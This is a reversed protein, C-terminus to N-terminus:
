SNRHLLYHSIFKVFRVSDRWPHIQSKSGEYVCRIPISLIRYKKRAAELLMESEIEYRATQLSLSKLTEGKLARYGCQTDAIRQKAAMSLVWSMVHNTAVRLWPMGMPKEMRSGVVFDAGSNLADVFLILETPDHQGDADMLIIARYSKSFFYEFGKRLASGKGQNLPLTMVEAGATKAVTPTSDKSADDVVLVPFGMARAAATVRGINKEENYAPILVLTDTIRIEAM